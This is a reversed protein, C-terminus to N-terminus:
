CSPDRALPSGRRAQGATQLPEPKRSLPNLQPRVPGSLRSVLGVPNGQLRKLATLEFELVLTGIGNLLIKDRHEAVAAIEAWILGSSMGGLDYGSLRETPDPRRTM